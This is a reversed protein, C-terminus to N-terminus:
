EIKGNLIIGKNTERVLTKYKGDVLSYTSLLGGDLPTIKYLDGKHAVYIGNDFDTAVKTFIANSRRHQTSIPSITTITEIAEDKKDTLEEEINDEAIAGLYEQFIDNM